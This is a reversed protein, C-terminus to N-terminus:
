NQSINLLGEIWRHSSDHLNHLIALESAATRLVEIRPSLSAPRPLAPRPAAARRLIAM